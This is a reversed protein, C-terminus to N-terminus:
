TYHPRSAGALPGDRRVQGDRLVFIDSIRPEAKGSRETLVEHDGACIDGFESVHQRLTYLSDCLQDLEAVPIDREELAGAKRM